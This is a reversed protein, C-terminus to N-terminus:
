IYWTFFLRSPRPTPACLTHSKLYSRPMKSNIFYEVFFVGRRWLIVGVYRMLLGYLMLTHACLYRKLTFLSIKYWKYTGSVVKQRLCRRAGRRWLSLSSPSVSSDRSLAKTYLPIKICKFYEDIEWLAPRCRRQQHARPVAETRRSTERLDPGSRPINTSSRVIRVTELGNVASFICKNFDGQEKKTSLNNYM